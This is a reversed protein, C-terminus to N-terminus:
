QETNNYYTAPMMFNLDSFREVSSFRTKAFCFRVRTSRTEDVIGELYSIIERAHSIDTTQQKNKIGEVELILATLHNALDHLLTVGLQGLEAFRYM